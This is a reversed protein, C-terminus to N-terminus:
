SSPPWRERIMAALELGIVSGRTHLDAVVVRIDTGQELIHIAECATRAEVVDCGAAEIYNSLSMALLPDDELPLVVPCIARDENAM